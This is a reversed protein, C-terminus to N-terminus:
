QIQGITVQDKGTVQARFDKGSSPNRVLISAGKVGDQQARGEMSLHAAGEFVHVTVVDGRAVDPAREIQNKRIVSAKHLPTKAVFGTAEELSRVVTEDLPSDEGTELRLQGAQIPKGAPINAAAVVRTMTATIRVKAWIDFRRDEGYRVYGRWLVDKIYKDLQNETFQLGARPFVVDGSPARHQSASTIEIKADPIGIGAMMADRLQDSSPVFTRRKFCVDAPATAMEVGRNKAINQLDTGKLIRPEGSLPVYGLSFDVSLQAFAPVMAAVDRALIYERDIAQCQEPESVAVALLIPIALIM